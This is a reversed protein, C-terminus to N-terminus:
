LSTLINNEAISNDYINNSTQFLKNQKVLHEEKTLYWM